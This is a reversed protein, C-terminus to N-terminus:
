DDGVVVDLLTAKLALDDGVIIADLEARVEGAEASLFAEDLAIDVGGVTVEFSGVAPRNLVFVAGSIIAVLLNEEGAIFVNHVVVTPETRDFIEVVFM